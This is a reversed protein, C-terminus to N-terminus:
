DESITETNMDLLIFSCDKFFPLVTFFFAFQYMLRDSASCRLMPTIFLKGLLKLCCGPLIWPCCFLVTLLYLSRSFNSTNLSRFGNSVRLDHKGPIIRLRYCVCFFPCTLTLSPFFLSLFSLCLFPHFFYFCDLLSTLLNDFGGVSIIPLVTSLFVFAWVPRVPGWDHLFAFDLPFSDIWLLQLLLSSRGFANVLLTASGVERGCAWVCARRARGAGAGCVEDMLEKRFADASWEGGWTGGPISPEQPLPMQTLSLGRSQRSPRRKGTLIFSLMQINHLSLSYHTYGCGKRIQKNKRLSNGVRWINQM